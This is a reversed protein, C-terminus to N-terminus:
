INDYNGIPIPIPSAEKAIKRLEHEENKLIDLIMLAESASLELCAENSDRILVGFDKFEITIKERIEGM